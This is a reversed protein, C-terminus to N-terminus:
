LAPYMAFVPKTIQRLCAVTCHLISKARKKQQYCAFFYLMAFSAREIYYTTLNTNLPWSRTKDKFLKYLPLNFYLVCATFDPKLCLWIEQERPPVKHLPAVESWTGAYVRRSHLFNLAKSLQFTAKFNLRSRLSFFNCFPRKLLRPQILQLMVPGSWTWSVLSTFTRLM